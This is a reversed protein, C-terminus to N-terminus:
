LLAEFLKSTSALSVRWLCSSTLRDHEALLLLVQTAGLVGEGPLRKKQVMMFACALLRADSISKHKSQM